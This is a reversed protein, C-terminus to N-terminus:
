AGLARRDAAFLDVGNRRFVREDWDWYFLEKGNLTLEYHTVEQFIHNCGQMEEPSSEDPEWGSVVGDIIARAPVAKGLTKDRYAGAFTWRDKEGFGDFVDTDIGKVGFTPEPAEIRPLVVNVAGIGGGPNHTATVLRIAPMAVVSIINSRTTGAKLARRVDIATLLYLSASM